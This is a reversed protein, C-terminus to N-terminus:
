VMGHRTDQNARGAMKLHTGRSLPLFTLGTSPHWQGLRADRYQEQAREKGKGKRASSNVTCLGVDVVEQYSGFESIEVSLSKQSVLNILFSRLWDSSPPSYM